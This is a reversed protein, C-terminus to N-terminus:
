IWTQQHRRTTVANSRWCGVVLRTKAFKGCARKEAQGKAPHSTDNRMVENAVARGASLEGPLLSAYLIMLEQALQERRVHLVIAKYSNHNAQRTRSLSPRAFNLISATETAWNSPGYVKEIQNFAQRWVSQFV